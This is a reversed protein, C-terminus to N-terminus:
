TLSFNNIPELSSFTIMRAVCNSSLMAEPFRVETEGRANTNGQVYEPWDEAYLFTTNQDSDIM